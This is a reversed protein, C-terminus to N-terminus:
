HQPNSLITTSKITEAHSHADSIGQFVLPTKLFRGQLEISGYRLMRGWLTQRYFINEINKLAFRRERVTFLGRRHIIEDFHIEYTEHTWHLLLVVGYIIEICIIFILTILGIEITQFFSFSGNLNADFDTAYIFFAYLISLGMVMTLFKLM